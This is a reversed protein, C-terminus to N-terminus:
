ELKETKTTEGFVRRFIAQLFGFLAFAILFLGVADELSPGSSGAVHLKVARRLGADGLGAHAVHCGYSAGHDEPRVAALRTFSTFSFTGDPSQRHGSEWTDALVDVPAGLSRRKWTVSVSQPYFGAVECALEAHASPAVSLPSPRLTVTPPEVVRLEMAQQAHLHPMYVTCIYTGEHGVRVNQLHLSVNSSGPDLFLRAGEEAVSVRRAAGDYALVVRGAGSHQHRWEVSFAAAPGSFGCDILVDRGLRSQLHPTRTFVSLVATTTTVRQTAAEQKWPLPGEGSLISTVGYGAEPNQVTAIFWKGPELARPCGKESVLGAAWPVHAEQPLYANIECSVNDETDASGEGLWLPSAGPERDGWLTGSPDLIQFALGHEVEPPLQPEVAEEQLRTGPRPLLLFARRQSLASPMVSGGGGAEEVFWCGLKAVAPGPASPPTSLAMSVLGLFPFLLLPRPGKKGRLPAFASAAM